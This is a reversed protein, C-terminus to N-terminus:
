QKGRIKRAFAQVEYSYGFRLLMRASSRTLGFGPSLRLTHSGSFNWSLV